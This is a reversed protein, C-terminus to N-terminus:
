DKSMEKLEIVREKYKEKNKMFEIYINRDIINM